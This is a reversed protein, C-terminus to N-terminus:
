FGSKYELITKRFGGPTGEWLKWICAGETLNLSSPTEVTQLSETHITGWSQKSNDTKIKLPVLMVMFTMSM